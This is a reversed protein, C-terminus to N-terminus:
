RAEKSFNELQLVIADDASAASVYTTDFARVEVLADGLDADEEDETWLGGSRFRPGEVRPSVAVFVGSEFQDVLIARRILAASDGIAVPTPDRTPLFPKGINQVDAAYWRLGPRAAEIEAVVAAIHDGRCVTPANGFSQRDFRIIRSSSTM